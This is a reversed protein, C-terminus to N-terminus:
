IKLSKRRVSQQLTKLKSKQKKVYKRLVKVKKVHRQPTSTAPSTETTVLATKLSIFTNGKSTSIKKNAM